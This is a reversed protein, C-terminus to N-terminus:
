CLDKLQRVLRRSAEIPEILNKLYVFHQANSQRVVRDVHEINIICSRHIRIFNREPLDEQWQKLTRLVLYRKGEITVLRSYNGVPEIYTISSIKVFKSTSNSLHVYISDSYEYGKPIPKFVPEPSILKAITAMLREPSVPKLLYDAANVEFARVAYEDYATVFVIRISADIMELLDFGIEGRLQIDLFILQPKCQKVLDLATQCSHAEGVIEIEPHPELLRKLNVRALREDDVIITRLRLV